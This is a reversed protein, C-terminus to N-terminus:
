WIIGKQTKIKLIILWRPTANINETTATCEQRGVWLTTRTHVLLSTERQHKNSRFGILM